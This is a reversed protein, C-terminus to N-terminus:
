AEEPDGRFRAGEARLAGRARNRPTIMHAVYRSRSQLLPFV